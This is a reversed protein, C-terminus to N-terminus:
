GLASWLEPEFGTLRVFDVPDWALGATSRLLGEFPQSLNAGLALLGVASATPEFGVCHLNSDQGACSRREPGCWRVVREAGTAGPAPCWSTYSLQCLVRSNGSVM